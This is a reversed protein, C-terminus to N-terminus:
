IRWGNASRLARCGGLFGCGEAVRGGYRTHNQRSVVTPERLLGGMKSSEAATGARTRPWSPPLVHL